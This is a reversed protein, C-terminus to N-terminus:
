KEVSAVRRRNTANKKRAPIGMRTLLKYTYSYQLGLIGHIQRALTARKINPNGAMLKAAELRALDRTADGMDLRGASANVTRLGIRDELGAITKATVAAAKQQQKDAHQLILMWSETVLGAEGPHCMTRAATPAAAHHAAHIENLKDLTIPAPREVERGDVYVPRTKPV